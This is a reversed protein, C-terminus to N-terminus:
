LPPSTDLKHYSPLTTFLQQSLLVVRHTLNTSICCVKTTTRRKLTSSTASGPSVIKLLCYSDTMGKDMAPLGSAGVVTVKLDMTNSPNITEAAISSHMESHNSISLRAVCSSVIAAGTEYITMAGRYKPNFCWALLLLKPFYFWFNSGNIFNELIFSLGFILWYQLWFAVDEAGRKWLSERIPYYTATVSVIFPGAGLGWCLVLLVAMVFIWVIWIRHLKSIKESERLMVDLLPFQELIPQLRKETLYQLRTLQERSSYGTM